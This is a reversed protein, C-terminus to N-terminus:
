EALTMSEDTGQEECLAEALVTILWAAQMAGGVSCLPEGIMLSNQCIACATIHDCVHQPFVPDYHIMPENSM